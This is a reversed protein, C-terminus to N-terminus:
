PKRKPKRCPKPPEEQPVGAISRAVAELASEPLDAVVQLRDTAEGAELRYIRDLQVAADVRDRALAALVEVARVRVRPEMNADNMVDALFAPAEQSIKEPIDWGGYVARELCSLHLTRERNHALDRTDGKGRVPQPQEQMQGESQM